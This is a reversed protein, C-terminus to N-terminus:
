PLSVFLSCIDFQYFYNGITILVIFSISFSPVVKLLATQFPISTLNRNSLVSIFKRQSLSFFIKSPLKPYEASNEPLSLVCILVFPPEAALFGEVFGSQHVGM